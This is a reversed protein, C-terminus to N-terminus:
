EQWKRITNAYELMNWGNTALFFLPLNVDDDFAWHGLAMFGVGLPWRAIVMTVVPSAWFSKLFRRCIMVMHVTHWLM